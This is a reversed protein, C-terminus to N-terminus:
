GCTFETNGAEMSSADTCNNATIARLRHNLTVGLAHIYFTQTSQGNVNASLRVTEIIHEALTSGVVRLKATRM